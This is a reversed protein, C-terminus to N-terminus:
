VLGGSVFLVRRRIAAPLLGVVSARDDKNLSLVAVFAVYLLSPGAAAVALSLLGQPRLITAFAFCAMALIAAHLVAVVINRYFARWRLGLGWASYTATMLNNTVSLILGASAVGFLGWDTWAASVLALLVNLAGLVLTTWSHLRVDARSILVYAMPIISANSVVPAVMLVLLISYPVFTPGLWGLLLPAAFGSVLGVPLAILLGILKSAREALLRVSQPDNTAHRAMIAPSVVSAIADGLLRIAEVVLLLAGYRGTAESGLAFNIIILGSGQFLILGVRLIVMWGGLGSMDRLELAHVLGREFRLFPAIRRCILWGAATSLIGALLFGPGILWPAPAAVQFLAVVFGVRVLLSGADLLNRLDFRHLAVLTANFTSAFLTLLFAAGIFAFLVRSQSELGHVVQFLMPFWWAIAALVPATLACFIGMTAMSAVFATNALM